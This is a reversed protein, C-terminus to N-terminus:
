VCAAAPSWLITPFGSELARLILEKLSFRAALSRVIRGYLPYSVRPVSDEGMLSVVEALTLTPDSIEFQRACVVALGEFFWSPGMADASGSESVAVAEHARHCLEHVLLGHYTEATWTWDPYLRQWTLRYSEPAVILLMQGIVTGAFTDPVQEPQAGFSAVLYERAAVADIVVVASDILRHPTVDFGASHFIGAVEALAQLLSAHYEARM